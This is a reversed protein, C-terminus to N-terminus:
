ICASHGICYSGLHTSSCPPQITSLTPVHVVRLSQMPPLLVRMHAGDADRQYRALTALGQAVWTRPVHLRDTLFSQQDASQAFTPAFCVLLEQVARSRPASSPVPEAMTPALGAALDPLHLAAFATWQQTSVHMSLQGVVGAILQSVQLRCHGLSCNCPLPIVLSPARNSCRCPCISSCPERHPACPLLHISM